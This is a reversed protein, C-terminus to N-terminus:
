QNDDYYVSMWALCEVKHLQHIVYEREYQFPMDPPIVAILPSDGQTNLLPGLGSIQKTVGARTYLPLWEDAYKFTNTRVEKVEPFDKDYLEFRATQLAAESPGTSATTEADDAELEKRVKSPTAGDKSSSTTAKSGRKRLRRTIKVKLERPPPEKEPTLEDTKDSDTDPAETVQEQVQQGTKSTSPNSEKPKSKELESKEPESGGDEPQSSVSPVKCGGASPSAKPLVPSKFAKYVANAMSPVFLPDSFVAPVQHSRKKLFDEEYHLDLCQPLGASGPTEVERQEMQLVVECMASSWLRGAGERSSTPPNSEGPAVIGLRGLFGELLGPFFNSELPRDTAM